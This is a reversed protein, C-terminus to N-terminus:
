EKESAFLIFALDDKVVFADVRGVGKGRGM